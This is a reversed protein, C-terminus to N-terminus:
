PSGRYRPEVLKELKDMRASMDQVEQKLASLSMAQVVNGVIGAVALTVLGPMAWKNWGGGGGEHYTEIDITARRAGERTAQMVLERLDDRDKAYDPDPGRESRSFLKTLRGELGLIMAGLSTFRALLWESKPAPEEPLTGEEITTDPQSM